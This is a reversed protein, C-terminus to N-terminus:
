VTVQYVGGGSYDAVYLNGQEDEGFSSISYPSDLLLQTEWGTPNPRLGWIKGNAFDSYLYIGQLRPAALGRYVYGGTISVGQAHDYGAVPLVLGSTDNGNSRYPFSGELIRWGYNEGGLSTAPQVNVEEYANQGVDAIYLDGAQRDFSFRWPNRLGLAWIEDRYQNSPDTTTLFPNTSPITYSVTGPSEVDIRLLKGLLSTPNQANNNPDGSGGGDGTGIYLYGDPGFALQGGNHNTNTPHDITLIIQESNSDAVNPDATLGYRAIVLNGAANTYYVYFHQKDIYGPPFAVSLLGQEGGTLVRSRIDLFPTPLLTGNQAIRIRGSQEVVFLRDSGDGAHTVFVPNSVGALKPTLSITPLLARDSFDIGVATTGSNLVVTQSTSVSNPSIATSQWGPQLVQAVTYPEAALGAFRYSGDANTATFSETPDLQGNQNQDLYVTWNALGPEYAERVGNDNVDNWVLGQLDALTEVPEPVNTAAVNLRYDASPVSPAASVQIYYTGPTLITHIVEPTTGPNASSQSVGNISFASGTSDLLVINADGSLGSLSAYLSSRSAVTLQYYDDLAPAVRDSFSQVSTTLAITTARDLSNGASDPM